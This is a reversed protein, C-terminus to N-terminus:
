KKRAVVCITDSTDTLDVGTVDGFFSIENFGVTKLLETIERSNFAHNWLNYCTCEDEEIILYQELYDSTDLYCFDRKICAYPHARWFGSEEYTVSQSEVVEKFHYSSFGDFVLIGDKDLARYAKRLFKERDRPSLVGFDCYILTIVQNGEGFDAELYNEYRYAIDLGKAQAHEQAYAISRKSYDIGCVTFGQDFFAEAYLGPGCGLDLLCGKDAGGVLSGIWQASLDIQEHKRSASELAPDLHADLMGKSIHPDDWFLDEGPEYPEPCKEIMKLLQAYSM